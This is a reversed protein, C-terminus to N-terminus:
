LIGSFEKYTRAYLFLLLVSTPGLPVPEHDAHDVPGDVSGEYVVLSPHAAGGVVGVVVFREVHEHVSLIITM